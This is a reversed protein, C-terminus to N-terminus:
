SNTAPPKRRVFWIALGIVGGDIVLPAIWWSADDYIIRNGGYTFEAIPRVMLAQTGLIVAVVTIVM